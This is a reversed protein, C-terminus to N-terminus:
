STGLRRGNTRRIKNRVVRRKLLETKAVRAWKWMLAKAGAAGAASFARRLYRDICNAAERSEPRQRITVKQSLGEGAVRASIAPGGGGM